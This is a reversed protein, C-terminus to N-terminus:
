KIAFDSFDLPNQPLNQVRQSRKLLIRSHCKVAIVAGNEIGQLLVAADAVHLQGCGHIQGFGGAQPTNSRQLLRAHDVAINCEDALGFGAQGAIYEHIDAQVAFLSNAHAIATTGSKVLAETQAPDAALHLYTFLVQDERLMACESLQPEKVKVIMDAAAFVDEARDVVKAGAAVYDANSMGIGEGAHTEVIVEHGDTVLERVGAPTMGVRFELTKIEKPVGIKM